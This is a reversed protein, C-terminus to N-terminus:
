ALRLHPSRYLRDSASELQDILPDAPDLARRARDLLSVASEGQRRRIGRKELRACLKLFDQEDPLRTSTRRSRNIFWTLPALVLAWSGLMVTVFWGVKIDGFWNKLLGLQEESNFGVIFSQWRWAAADYRLRMWNVLGIGRFRYASLPSDALFNEDDALAEELGFEVRAPSVAGTPDVRSWGRDELWVEAWAHADFQRVVVTNNVPNVEGGQYGGVIRAPIGALRMLTVFAYAYHECFGRRSDFMFRDVFDEDTIPPPKLTYYFPESRFYDLVAAVLREDDSYEDRLNSIWSQSRPNLGDPFALETRRRWDSLEPQLTAGPWSKVRYGLQAEIPTLVTLRYDWAEIIGATDSEAYPLAYLWRQMTPELIVQYTLAEGTTEPRQLRREAGPHDRWGLTRWAGDDFDSMVMGRWYLDSKPPIDADFQVRFAVSASRGLKSVDGPRLTDSMGTIGQGTKSPVSWLPGIRPFLVFLVAMMPIALALMKMALIPERMTTRAGSSQNLTIMSTVLLLSAILTYLVVPLEQSFLFQTICIFFGLCVLVYGDKARVSELFKLATAVLLLAVMPELGILSRYSAFVALGATVGLLLRILRGPPESRGRYMQIRWLAAGIYVAIVWLPVRVLHPIVVVFQCLVLWLMARRPLQDGIIM